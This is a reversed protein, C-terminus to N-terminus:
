RRVGRGRPPLPRNDQLAEARPNRITEDVSMILCAAETAAALANQKVLAPEWVWSKLTDCVGENEIDVGMWKNENATSQTTHLARLENVIDTADFGANEALTRPIVELSKAFAGVIMQIKSEITKSYNKLHRSLEM